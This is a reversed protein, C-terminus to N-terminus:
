TCGGRYYAPVGTLDRGSLDEQLQKSAAKVYAQREQMLGYLIVAYNILDVCTDRVSEDSVQLPKGSVATSLRSLKDDIRVLVGGAASILGRHECMRFNKFADKSEETNAYDENKKAMIASGELTMEHHLRLLGEKLM